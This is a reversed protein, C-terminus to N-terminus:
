RSSRQHRNILQYTCSHQMIDISRCVLAVRNDADLFDWYRAALGEHKGGLPLLMPEGQYSPLPHADGAYTTIGFGSGPTCEAYEFYHWLSHNAATPDAKIMALWAQQHGKNLTLGGAIRPTWHPTDPEHQHTRLAELASGGQTIYSALTDTHAGNSVLYHGACQCMARYIILRADEVATADFPETMIDDGRTVFVRNRSNASRGMIWYLQLWYRGDESLGQVIGRGPYPNAKLRALNAEAQAQWGAPVANAPSPHTM